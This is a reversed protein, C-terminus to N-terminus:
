EQVRASGSVVVASGAIEEIVITTGAARRYIRSMYTNVAYLFEKYEPMPSCYRIDPCFSCCFTVCYPPSFDWSPGKRVSARLRAEPWPSACCDCCTWTQEMHFTSRHRELRVVWDECIECYSGPTFASPRQLRLDEEEEPRRQIGRAGDGGVSVDDSGERTM